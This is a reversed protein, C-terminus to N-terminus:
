DFVEEKLKKACPHCMFLDFRPPSAPRWSDGENVRCVVCVTM